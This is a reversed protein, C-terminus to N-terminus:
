RKRSDLFRSIFAGLPVLLAVLGEVSLGVSIFVIGAVLGVTGFATAIKQSRDEHKINHNVVKSEVDRRHSAEAETLDMSREALRLIREASGPHIREYAEYSGPEPLPGQHWQTAVFSVLNTPEGEVLESEPQRLGAEQRRRELEGSDEAV